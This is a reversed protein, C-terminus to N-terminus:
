KQQSKKEGSSRRAEDALRERVHEISYDFDWNNKTPPLFM